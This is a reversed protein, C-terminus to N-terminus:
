FNWDHCMTFLGSKYYGQVSVKQNCTSVMLLNYDKQKRNVDMIKSEVDSWKFKNNCDCLCEMQNYM